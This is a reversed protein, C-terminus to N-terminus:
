RLWGVALEELVSLARQPLGGKEVSSAAVLPISQTTRGDMIINLSGITQGQEVPALVPGVYSIEAKLKDQQVLPVLTAVDNKAVMGVTGVSGGFVTANGIVAGAKALDRLQFGTMGWEMMKRAELAREESSELGSMALFVRRGRVEGSGVIAYGSAETFGTKLGDAGFDMRLLPNRNRQEIGNWEFSQESYIRYYEPYTEFLHRALTVMDRMSVKSVEDPLGTSYGFVSNKLGIVQARETMLKAFNAESGALGEALAIAADNGSQIVMGRILDIVPVESKVKAFMTSGGSGAGGTRWANESIFLTRDERLAGTKLANFVVEATMLKALSAPPVVEDAAKEFLITGTQYDVLIAQKANTVFLASEDQALATGSVTVVFLVLAFLFRM